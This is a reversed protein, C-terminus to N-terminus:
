FLIFITFYSYMLHYGVSTCVKKNLILGTHQYKAHRKDFKHEKRRIEKNNKDSNWLRIESQIRRRDINIFSTYM